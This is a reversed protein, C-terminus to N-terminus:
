PKAEQYTPAVPVGDIVFEHGVLIVDAEDPLGTVWIGDVTDRMLTVPQFQANSGADVVRVGMKGEDDLALASQPLLHAKQGEAGIMIEATQGDRISLDSNPVDIEVLFTRTEPDASRSLFTVRGQVQVGSTLDAKALAGVQVRNVATEPVFGVVKIPDLQIVTACLSGPQMLSGLEASDSELLGEFPAKITLREIAKEAEAIRAQASQIGAKASEVGSFASQVAAESSRVAAVAQAVRTESAYGGESLKQAANVNIMAEKVLAHAEELRAQAEPVKSQSELLNARTDALTANRTGPDLQCLVDDANVFVGKRLPPSIVRASVESRVDVQRNAQTQGRLIVASDISQAVSHRAVVGVAAISPQEAELTAHNPSEGGAAFLILAEREFVVLYLFAAVLLATLAPILRMYQREEVTGKGREAM